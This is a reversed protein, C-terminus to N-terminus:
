SSLRAVLYGADHNVEWIDLSNALQNLEETGNYYVHAVVTQGSAIEQTPTVSTKQALAPSGSGIFMVMILIISFFRNTIHSAKM